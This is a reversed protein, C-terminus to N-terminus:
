TFATLTQTLVSAAILPATAAPGSLTYETFTSAAATFTTAQITTALTTCAGYTFIGTGDAPVCCIFQAGINSQGTIYLKDAALTISMPFIGSTTSSLQNKWSITGTNDIKAVVAVPTTNGGVVTVGISTVFLNGSSDLEVKTSASTNYNTQGINWANQWIPTGSSDLKMVLMQLVPWVGNKGIVGTLYINGSSDTTIAELNPLTGNGAPDSLQKQWVLTGTNTYRVVGITSTSWQSNGAVIIDGNSAICIVGLDRGFPSLEKRWRFAGTNDFSSVSARVAGTGAQNSYGAVYVYDSADVALSVPSIAYSSDAIGFTRVLSGAQSYQLVNLSTYSTGVVVGTSTKAIGAASGQGMGQAYGYNAAAQWLPTGDLSLKMSQIGYVSNGTVYIGTSDATSSRWAGTSSPTTTIWSVATSKTFYYVGPAQFFNM